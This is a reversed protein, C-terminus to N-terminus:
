SRAARLVSAALVALCGLLLEGGALEPQGLRLALVAALAVVALVALTLRLDAVFMGFLEALVDRLISM